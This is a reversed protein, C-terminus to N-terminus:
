NPLKSYDYYVHMSEEINLREVNWVLTYRGNNKLQKNAYRLAIFVMEHIDIEYSIAEGPQLVVHIGTGLDIRDKSVHEGSASYVDIRNDGVFINKPIIVTSTSNNILTLDLKSSDRESFVM